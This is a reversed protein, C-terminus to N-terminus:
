HAPVPAPVSDIHSVTIAAVDVDEPGPIGTGPLQVAAAGYAVSTALADSLDAGHARALCYGALASDGAGVTSLAHVQPSPAAWANHATVLLAGSAGLTVLVAKVGRAIVERAAAIIPTCDGAAAAAELEQGCYGPVIEALEFANPKIINPAATELNDMLARLAPGSTDVAIPVEPHTARLAHVLRSYLAPDTGPPLSGALVIWSATAAADILEQEVAAIESDNLAHGPENFKTTNGAPDTYTTNFRAPHGTPIRKTPVKLQALHDYLPDEASGPVLALTPTQAKAIAVSVNIGKGGATRDMHTIRNVGDVQAEEALTCTVDIAPNVTLTVVAGGPRTASQAPDM